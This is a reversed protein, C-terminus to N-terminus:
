LSFVTFLEKIIQSMVLFFFMVKDIVM